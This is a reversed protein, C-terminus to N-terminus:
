HHILNNILPALTHALQSHGNKSFHMCDVENFEAVGEADLFACNHKICLEKYLPALQSSKAISDNGMSSYFVHNRIGEKIHPPAIVLINPEAKWVPLSKAKCVLQEMGSAICQPSLSFREKTDNTGLMIILLDIPQHSMLCPVISDMGSLGEGLPDDFVTTRGCLGEEIVHFDSGLLDQLLMTWRESENFRYGCEPCACPDACDNPDACYGHTNSDGFCVIHKKM